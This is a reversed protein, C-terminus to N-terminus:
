GRGCISNTSVKLCHFCTFTLLVGMGCFFHVFFIYKLIPSVLLLSRFASYQTPSMSISDVMSKGYHTKHTESKSIKDTKHTKWYKKMFNHGFIDKKHTKHGQHSGQISKSYRYTVLKTQHFDHLLQHCWCLIWWLFELYSM